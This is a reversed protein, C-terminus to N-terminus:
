FVGGDDSSRSKVLRAAEVVCLVAMVVGLLFSVITFGAVFGSGPEGVVQLVFGFLVWLGSSLAYFGVSGRILALVWVVLVLVAFVFFLSGNGVVGGGDGDVSPSPSPQVSAVGYLVFMLNHSGASGPIGWTSTYGVFAGGNAGV